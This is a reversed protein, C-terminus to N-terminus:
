TAGALATVEDFGERLSIAFTEADTISEPDFNVTVCCNEAYSVMTIMAAVGPRPGMPYLGTVRAGALYLPRGVGGMNSAQIDIAGTLEGAMRTLVPGPLVGLVPAILDLFGLAPENRADAIFRHIAAIRAAPDPEGVPAAFRAAAFRNGGLPDADTRLSIPIAMPVFDVSVSLKQHYRRVGGLIAALFADNVSGHAARGAAKMEALPVDLTLLRYAPGGDRLLPSRPTAAPTLVRRLSNGFRVARVATGLPDGALRGIGHVAGRVFDGPAAIARATLRDALLGSPTAVPRATQRSSNPPRPDPARGHGHTLDLLQLLGLGDTLSHHPKLLYAAQGGALGSVLVAEWPPRLPDLPRSAFQGIFSYLEGTSGDGPLRVRQLHYDLDFHPDPSWAPSVVPVLPEVIRERMRPIAQTLREHAAVLRDWDPEQDLLEILVGTSRTRHEGEARWMVAEWASLQAGGGWHALPDTGDSTM